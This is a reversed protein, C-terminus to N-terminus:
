AHVSRLFHCVLIKHSMSSHQFTPIIGSRVGIPIEMEAGQATRVLTSMLVCMLSSTIHIGHVLLAGQLDEEIVDVTGFWGSRAVRPPVGEASWSHSRASRALRRSPRGCSIVDVHDSRLAPWADARLGHMLGLISTPVMPNQLPLWAHGRQLFAPNAPNLPPQGALQFRFFIVTAGRM